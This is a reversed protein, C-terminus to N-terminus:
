FSWVRAAIMYQFYRSFNKSFDVCFIDNTNVCVSPATNRWESKHAFAKRAAAVAIDIDSKDAEAVDCIKEGNTPDYTGFKKGSASDVWENNIFLQTYKPKPRVIPNPLNEM